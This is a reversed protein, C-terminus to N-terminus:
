RVVKRERCVVGIKICGLVCNVKWAALVYQQSIDLKEDVLVWLDQEVPSKELTEKGLRYLYRLLCLRSVGTSGSGACLGLRTEGIEQIGYSM